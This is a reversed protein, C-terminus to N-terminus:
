QFIKFIAEKQIEKIAENFCEKLIKEQEKLDIEPNLKIEEVEFKGNMVVKMGRKEIEKKEKELSDKIKKFKALDRLQEFM